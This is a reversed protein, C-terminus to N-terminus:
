IATISELKSPLQTGTRVTSLSTQILWVHDGRNLQTLHGQLEVSWFLSIRGFINQQKQDMVTSSVGTTQKHDMVSLQMYIHIGTHTWPFHTLSHTHTHTNHGLISGNEKRAPHRLLRSFWRKTTAKYKEGMTLYPM